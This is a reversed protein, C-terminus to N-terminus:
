LVSIASASRISSVGVVDGFLQSFTKSSTVASLRLIRPGADLKVNAALVIDEDGTLRSILLVYATVLSYFPRDGLTKLAHKVDQSAALLEVAEISRKKRDEQSPEPYDRTLPSITLDKLRDIRSASGRSVGNVQM